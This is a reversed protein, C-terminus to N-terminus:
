AGQVKKNSNDLTKKTKIKVFWVQDRFVKSQDLADDREYKM